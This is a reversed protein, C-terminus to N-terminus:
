WTIPGRRKGTNERLYTVQVPIKTKQHFDLQSLSFPNLDDSYSGTRKWPDFKRGEFL